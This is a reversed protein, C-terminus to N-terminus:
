KEEKNIYEIKGISNIKNTKGKISSVYPHEKYAEKNSKSIHQKHEETMVCERKEKTDLYVWHYGYAVVLKDCAEQICGRYAKKGRLKEIHRAAESLGYFIKGTEVCMVKRCVKRRVEENKMPNNKTLRKSVAKRNKISMIYNNKMDKYVGNMWNFHSALSKLAKTREPDSSHTAGGDGGDAINYQAQGMNRYMNIFAKELFNTMKLTPSFALIDKKFNDIGYKKYAYNLILGSGIYGDNLNNTKHKGIYNKNNILNTIKYIYYM